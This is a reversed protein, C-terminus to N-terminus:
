VVLAGCRSLWHVVEVCFDVPLFLSLSESSCLSLHWVLFSTSVGVGRPGDLCWTVVCGGVVEAAIGAGSLILVERATSYAFDLESV